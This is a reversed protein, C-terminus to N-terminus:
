KRKSTISATNNEANSSCSVVPADFGTGKQQIPTKGCCGSLACEEQLVDPIVCLKTIGFCSLRRLCASHTVQRLSDITILLHLLM